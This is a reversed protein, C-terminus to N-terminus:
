FVQNSTEFGYVTLSFDRGKSLFKQQRPKWNSTNWFRLRYSFLRSQTDDFFKMFNFLNFTEFGYVTLSFDRSPIM